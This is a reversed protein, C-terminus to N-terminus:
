IVAVILVSMQNLMISTGTEWFQLYYQSSYVYARPPRQKEKTKCKARKILVMHWFVSWKLVLCAKMGLVTFQQGKKRVTAYRPVLSMFGGVAFNSFQGRDVGLLVTFWPWTAKPNWFSCRGEPLKTKLPHVMSWPVLPVMLLTPPLGCFIRDVGGGCIKIAASSFLRDTLESASSPANLLTRQPPRGVSCWPAKNFQHVGRLKISDTYLIPASCFRLPQRCELSASLGAAAWDLFSSGWCDRGLLSPRSSRPYDRTKLGNM